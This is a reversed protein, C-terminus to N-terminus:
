TLSAISAPSGSKEPAVWVWRELARRLTEIKFPKAIFDDMGAALCKEQDGQMANATLAVIPIHRYTASTRIEHSMNALFDSKARTAAETRDKALTLETNMAMLDQTNGDIQKLMGNFASILEGIEDKSQTPVRVGYNKHVSIDRAV